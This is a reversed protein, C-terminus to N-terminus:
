QEIRRWGYKLTAEVHKIFKCKVAHMFFQHTTKWVVQLVDHVGDEHPRHASTRLGWFIQLVNYDELVYTM